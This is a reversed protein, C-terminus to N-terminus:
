TLCTTGFLVFVCPFCGACVGEDSCVVLHQIRQACTYICVYSICIHINIVHHTNVDCGSTVYVCICRSIYGIFYVQTCANTKNYLYIHFKDIMGLFTNYMRVCLWNLIFIHAYIYKHM